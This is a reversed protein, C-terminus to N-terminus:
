ISSSILIHECIEEILEFNLGHSLPLCCIRSSINESITVSVSKVYIITNLSPYFYRRPFINQDNLAKEVRTNM